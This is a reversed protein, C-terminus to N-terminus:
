KLMCESYSIITQTYNEINNENFDFIRAYREDGDGYTAFGFSPNYGLIIGDKTEGVFSNFHDHGFYAGIIDGQKVWYEYQHTHKSFNESSPAERMVNYDGIWHVDKDLIYWDDSFPCKVSNPYYPPVQELLDYIEKVPIHQFLLSPLPEGHNLLKLFNSKAQYWALQYKDIGTNSGTKDWDHTDMIYINLKPTLGKRDYIILNSTGPYPSQSNLCTTFEHYVKAQEEISLIDGYDRDHNGFTFLFPINRDELPQLQNRIATKIKNSTPDEFVDSLQDGVIVVLDPAYKDLLTNLFLLSQENTKDTDQFDNIQLIRFTGNRNFKLVHTSPMSLAIIILILPLLIIFLFSLKRKSM